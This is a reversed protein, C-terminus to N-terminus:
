PPISEVQMRFRRMAFEYLETDVRNRSRILQRQRESVTAVHGSRHGTNAGTFDAFLWPHWHEIVRATENPYDVVNGISCSALRRKTEDLEDSSFKGQNVARDDWGVPSLWRAIENSCGHPPLVESANVLAEDLEADTLQEIPKGYTREFRETYCSVFRSVPERVIILCSFTPRPLQTRRVRFLDSYDNRLWRTSDYYFHGAYVSVKKVSRAIPNSLWYQNCSLSHKSGADGSLMATIENSPRFKENCPVFSRLSHRAAARAVNPRIASGGTKRLHFFIFPKEATPLPLPTPLVRELPPHTQTLLSSPSPQRPSTQMPPNRAGALALITLALLANVILSILPWAPRRAPGSEVSSSRVLAPQLMSILPWTSRRAPGSEVSSWRVLAPQMITLSPKEGEQVLGLRGGPGSKNKEANYRAREMRARPLTIM